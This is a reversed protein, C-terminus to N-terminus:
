MIEYLLKYVINNLVEFDINKSIIKDFSDYMEKIEEFYMKAINMQKTYRYRIDELKEKFLEDIGDLGSNVYFDLVSDTNQTNKEHPSTSDFICLSLERCVVMDLSNSDFGCHYVETSYGNQELKKVFKKLFTSKGTGPRGKIYYKKDINSTIEDIFNINGDHYVSGFFRNYSKPTKETSTGCVLNNIVSSCFTDLMDFNMNNIYISEWEDHIKKAGDYIAYVSSLKESIEKNLKYSDLVLNNYDSRYICSDIDVLISNNDACMLNSDTVAVQKDNCVFGDLYNHRDPNYIIDTNEYHEMIYTCLRSIFINKVYSFESQILYNTKCDCVNNKIYSVEGTCTNARAFYKIAM